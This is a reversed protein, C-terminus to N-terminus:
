EHLGGNFTGVGIIVTGAPIADLPALSARGLTRCTHKSCRYERGDLTTFGAGYAHFVCNDCETVTPARGNGILRVIKTM